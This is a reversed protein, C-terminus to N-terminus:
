ISYFYLHNEIWQNAANVLIEYLDKGLHAGLEKKYNSTNIKIKKLKGDYLHNFESDFLNEDTTIGRVDILKSGMMCFDHIFPFDISSHNLETANCEEVEEPSYLRHIPYNFKDHLCLAFVSCFGHLFDNATLNSIPSNGQTNNPILHQTLDSSRKNNQSEKEMYM